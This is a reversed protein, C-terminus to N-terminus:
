PVRLIDVLELFLVCGPVHGIVERVKSVSVAYPDNNNNIRQLLRIREWSAQCEHFCHISSSNLCTYSM